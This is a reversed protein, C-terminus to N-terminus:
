ATALRYAPRIWLVSPCDWMALSPEKLVFRGANATIGAASVYVAGWGSGAMGEWDPASRRMRHVAPLPFAEVLRDLDSETDILYIRAEPLPVVATFRNYTGHHVSPLGTLEDPTACWDTWATATPAGDGSCATVPSCWLGHDPRVLDELNRVATFTRPEPPLAGEQSAHAIPPLLEPDMPTLDVDAM